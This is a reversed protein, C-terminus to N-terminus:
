PFSLVARQVRKPRGASIGREPAEAKGIIQHCSSASADLVPAGRHGHSALGLRREAAKVFYLLALGAAFVLIAALAHDGM